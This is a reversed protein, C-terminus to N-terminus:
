SWALGHPEAEAGLWAMHSPELWCKAVAQTYKNYQFNTIHITLVSYLSLAHTLAYLVPLYLPRAAGGMVDDESERDTPYFSKLHLLTHPFDMHM